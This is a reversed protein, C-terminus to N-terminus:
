NEKDINKIHDLENHLNKNECSVVYDEFKSEYFKM